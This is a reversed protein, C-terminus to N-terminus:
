QTGYCKAIPRNSSGPISKKTTELTLGKVLEYGLRDTDRARWLSCYPLTDRRLLSLLYENEFLVIQNSLRSPMPMPMSVYLCRTGFTM